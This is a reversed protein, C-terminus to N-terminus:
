PSFYIYWLIFALPCVWGKPGVTSILALLPCLHFYPFFTTEGNRPIILALFFAIPSTSSVAHLCSLILPLAPRMGPWWYGMQPHVIRFAVPSPSLLSPHPSLIPVCYLCHSHSVVARHWVLNDRPHSVWTKLSSDAPEVTVCASALPFITCLPSWM